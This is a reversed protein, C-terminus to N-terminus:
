GAYGLAIVIQSAILIGLGAGVLLAAGAAIYHLDSPNKHPYRRRTWARVVCAAIAVCFLVALAYISAVMFAMSGLDV